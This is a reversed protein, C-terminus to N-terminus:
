KSGMDYANYAPKQAEPDGQGFNSENWQRCYYEYVLGSDQTIRKHWFPYGGAKWIGDLLDKIAQNLPDRSLTGATSKELKSGCNIPL